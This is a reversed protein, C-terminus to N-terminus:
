NPPTYPKAVPPKVSVPGTPGNLHVKDQDLGLRRCFYDVISPTAEDEDPFEDVNPVHGGPGYMTTLLPGDENDSGKFLPKREIRCKHHRQLCHKLEGITPRSGQSPDSSGM